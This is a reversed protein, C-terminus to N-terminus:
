QVEQADFVEKFAPYNTNTKGPHTSIAFCIRSFAGAFENESMVDRFLEAIHKPPNHFAGCGWAGLILNRQKHACAIRFITRMKNKVGDILEPVIREEGAVFETDPGVMAAVAIMNVLWTNEALAYGKRENERFITVNPSYVGGYNKDMPYQSPSLKLGYQQAYKAFCYMFRYYDSCRFLYEEQAGSGSTVGGGPNRRNAFNLVCVDLGENVWKHAADLSDAEIVSVEAPVNLPEFEATFKESYFTSGELRDQSALAVTKGDPLIYKGAQVISKTNEWVEIQLAKYNPSPANYRRLWDEADWTINNLM